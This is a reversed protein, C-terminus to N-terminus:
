KECGNKVAEVVQGGGIRVGPQEVQELPAVRQGWEDLAEARREKEALNGRSAVQDVEDGLRDNRKREPREHERRDIVPDGRFHSPWGATSSATPDPTRLCALSPQRSSAPSSHPFFCRSRLARIADAAM